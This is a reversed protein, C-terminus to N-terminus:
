CTPLCTCSLLFCLAPDPDNRCTSLRGKVSHFIRLLCSGCSCMSFIQRIKLALTFQLSFSCELVPCSCVVSRSQVSCILSPASFSTLFTILVTLPSLGRCLSCPPSLSTLILDSQHKNSQHHHSNIQNQNVKNSSHNTKQQNKISQSISRNLSIPEM